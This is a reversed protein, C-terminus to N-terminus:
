ERGMVMLKNLGDCVSDHLESWVACQDVLQASVIFIDSLCLNPNTQKYFQFATHQQKLSRVSKVIMYLTRLPNPSNSLIPILSWGFGKKTDKYSQGFDARFTRRLLM